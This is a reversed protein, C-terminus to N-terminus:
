AFSHARDGGCKRRLGDDHAQRIELRVLVGVHDAASSILRVFLIRHDSKTAGGAIDVLSEARAELEFTSRHLANTFFHAQRVHLEHNGEHACELLRLLDDLEECRVSELAALVPQFDDHHALQRRVRHERLTEEIVEVTHRDAGVIQRLERQSEIAVRARDRLQEIFAIFRDLRQNRHRDLRAAFSALVDANAALAWGIVGIESAPEDRM